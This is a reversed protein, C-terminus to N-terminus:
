WVWLENGGAERSEKIMEQREQELAKLLKEKLEVTWKKESYSHELIWNESYSSHLLEKFHYNSLQYLCRSTIIERNFLNVWIAYNKYYKFGAKKMRCKRFLAM